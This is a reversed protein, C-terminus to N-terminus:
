GGRADRLNHQVHENATREELLADLGIQAAGIGDRALEIPRTELEAALATRAQALGHKILMLAQEETM